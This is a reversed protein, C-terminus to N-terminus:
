TEFGNDTQGEPCMMVGANNLLLHIPRGSGIMRKTAAAISAQSALELEEADFEAEPVEARLTDLAADIKEANRGTITM